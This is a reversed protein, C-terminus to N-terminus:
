NSTREALAINTTTTTLTITSIISTTPTTEIIRTRSALAFGLHFCNNQPRFELRSVLAFVIGLCVLSFPQSFSTFLSHFNQSFETFVIHSNQSIETFIRHFHQSFFLPSHAGYVTLFLQFISYKRPTIQESPKAGAGQGSKESANGGELCNKWWRNMKTKRGGFIKEM